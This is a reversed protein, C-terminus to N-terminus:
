QEDAAGSMSLHDRYAELWPLTEVLLTQTAAFARHERWIRRWWNWKGSVHRALPPESGDPAVFTDAWESIQLAADRLTQQRWTTEKATETLHQRARVILGALDALYRTEHTNQQQETQGHGNNAAQVSTSM